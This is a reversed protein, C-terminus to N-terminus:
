QPLRPAAEPAAAERARAENDLKAQVLEPIVRDLQALSWLADNKFSRIVAPQQMIGVTGRAVHLIQSTLDKAAESALWTVVPAVQQPGRTVDEPDIEVGRGQALPITM